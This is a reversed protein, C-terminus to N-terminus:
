PLALIRSRAEFVSLPPGQERVVYEIAASLTSPNWLWRTSGHRAWRKRDPEDLGLENLKRSAYAKLTSMAREPSYEAEVVVHVHNTRVHAALLTWNNHACVEIISHLVAERRPEDLAYPAQAMQQAEISGRAQSPRALPTGPIRHHRDVAGREEGHLHTGYCAFTILYRIRVITVGMAEFSM